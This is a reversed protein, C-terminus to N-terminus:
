DSTLGELERNTLLLTLPIAFTTVTYAWALTSPVTANWLCTVVAVSLILLLVFGILDSAEERVEPLIQRADFLLALHRITRSATKTCLAPVLSHILCALGAGIALLGVTSAFRMHEFYREGAAELHMKSRKFM